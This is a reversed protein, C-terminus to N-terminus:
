GWGAGVLRKEGGIDRDSVLPTRSRPFPIAVKRTYRENQTVVCSDLALKGAKSLVQIAIRKHQRWYRDFANLSWHGLNRIHDTYVGGAAVQVGFSNLLPNMSHGKTWGLVVGTNDCQLAFHRDDKSM